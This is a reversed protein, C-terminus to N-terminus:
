EYSLVEEKKAGRVLMIGINFIGIVATYYPLNLLIHNTIPFSMVTTGFTSAQSITEWTNALFMSIIVGLIIALFYIFAFIPHSGAFYSVIISLLILGIFIGFVVYDLNDLTETRIGQFAAAANESQNIVTNNKTMIDITTSMMYHTVFLAIGLAFVIIGVFLIDKPEAM